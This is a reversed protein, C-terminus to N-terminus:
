LIEETLDHLMRIVEEIGFGNEEPRRIVITRVGCAAAADIKEPFGGRKGTEKTVLHSINYQQMVAENMKQTFPGFMAIINRTPIGAKVCVEISPVTPLVRVYLRERPIESFAEIEKSGTTLLINGHTKLLMRGAEGADAAERICAKARDPDAASGPVAVDENNPSAEQGETRGCGEAGRMLRIYKIGEKECAERINATAEVAYPHTADICIDYKGIVARMEDADMRGVLIRALNGERLLEEAGVDTAVSVTIEHGQGALRGALIRGESTGGYLIIKM